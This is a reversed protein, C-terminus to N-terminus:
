RVDMGVNHTQNLKKRRREIKNLKQLNVFFGLLFLVVKNRSAKAKTHTHAHAPMSAAYPFSARYISIDVFM